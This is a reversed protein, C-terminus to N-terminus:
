VNLERVRGMQSASRDAVATVGLDLTELRRGQDDLEAGIGRQAAHVEALLAQIERVVGDVEDDGERPKARHKADTALLAQVRDVLRALLGPAPAAAGASKRQFLRGVAQLWGWSAELGKIHGDAVGQAAATRRQEGEARKLKDADAALLEAALRSQSMAEAVNRLCERKLAELEGCGETMAAASPAAPVPGEPWQLEETPQRGGRDGGRHLIGSIITTSQDCDRKVLQKPIWGVASGAVGGLAAGGAVGVPGGLVGVGGGILAGFGAGQWPWRKARSKDAAVLQAAGQATQETASEMNDELRDLQATQSDLEATIHCAIDRIDRSESVLHRWGQASHRDQLAYRWQSGALPSGLLPLPAPRPLTPRVEDFLTVLQGAFAIWLREEGCAM